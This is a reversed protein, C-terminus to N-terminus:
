APWTLLRELGQQIRAVDRGERRVRRDRLWCAVRGRRQGDEGIQRSLRTITEVRPRRRREWAHLAQSLRQRGDAVAGLEGALVAADEMAMGAGQGMNPSLAHAADGLLLARGNVWSAAHLEEVDTCLVSAVDTVQALAARVAPASFDAFLARFEAASGLGWARSARPSDFTTWVYLQERSIPVLGIRKGRGLFETFHVLGSRNEVVFRHSRYGLYEPEGCGFCRARVASRIGDAGVLLDAEFREGGDTVATVGEETPVVDRVHVGFRVAAAPLSGHLVQHLHARHVLTGVALRGADYLPRYDRTALLRGRRDHTDRALYPWGRARLREALGNDELVRMANPNMIIGAGVPAAAAARELVTVPLGRIGLERALSLGGIGGGVVITRLATV